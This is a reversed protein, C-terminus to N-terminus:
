GALRQLTVKAEDRGPFDVNEKLAEQLHEIASNGDGKKLKAMGLHYHIVASQPAGASAQELNTLAPELEGRVYQIWGITDLFGPNKTAKLREALESARALAGTERKHDALLMALNNIAVAAEPEQKLLDEYVNIADDYKGARQYVEALGVMLDASPASAKIGRKFEAAARDFDNRGLHIAALRAYPVTWKRDIAQAKRFAGTAEDWKKQVMLTEGLLNYAVANQPDAAVFKQLYARAGEVKDLALYSRVLLTLPLPARRSIKLAQEFESISADFKKEGQYALGQLYHGIARDPFTAKVREATAHANKWDSKGAQLSFLAEYIRANQPDVNLAEQLQEIAADLQREGALLEAYSIRSAVDNPNSDVAKKISDKALEPEKNMLHARGLFGLLEASTPDGRLAARFDAVAAAADGAALAIRGRLTLAEKDNKNEELVENVLVQAEQFTNERLHLIALRKKASLAQLGDQDDAIIGEYTSRARNAQNTSEYLKALTFRLPYPDPHNEIFGLLEKEAQAKDRYTVLFEVLAGIYANNTPDNAIADRLVREARDFDKVSVYVGALTRRHGLNTPSLAINEELLRATEATKGQGFLIGAKITRLNSEKPNKEIGQDLLAIARDTQKRHHYFSTLLAISPTHGPDLKLGMEGDERAGETDGKRARIAGRLAYADANKADLTIAQEVLERAKPLDAAMLYIRGMRVRAGVHRTDQEIVALYHGAAGRWDQLKEMSEGLEYRLDLDTPDIQLANNFEVRAKEFQREQMYGRAREAYAAKREEAGGCGLM